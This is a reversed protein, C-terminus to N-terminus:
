FFFMSSSLRSMRTLLLLQDVAYSVIIKKQTANFLTWIKRLFIRSWCRSLNKVNSSIFQISKRLYIWYIYLDYGNLSFETCFIQMSNTDLIVQPAVTETQLFRRWWLNEQHSLINKSWHSTRPHLAIVLVTTGKRTSNQTLPFGKRNDLSSLGAFFIIQEDTM